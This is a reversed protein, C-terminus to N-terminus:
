TIKPWIKVCFPFCSCCASWVRDIKTHKLCKQSADMPHSMYVRERLVGIKLRVYQIKYLPIFRVSIGCRILWYCLSVYLSLSFLRSGVVFFALRLFFYNREITRLSFFQARVKVWRSISTFLAAILRPINLALLLFLYVQSYVVSPNTFIKRALKVPLM